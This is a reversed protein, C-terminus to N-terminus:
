RPLRFWRVQGLSYGFLTVWGLIVLVIMIFFIKSGTIRANEIEGFTPSSFVPITDPEAQETIRLSDNWFSMMTRVRSAAGLWLVAGIVGGICAIGLEFSGLQLRTVVFYFGGGHVSAFFANKAWGLTAELSRAVNTDKHQDTPTM